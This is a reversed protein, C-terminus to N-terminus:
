LNNILNKELGKLILAEQNIKFNKFFMILLKIKRLM